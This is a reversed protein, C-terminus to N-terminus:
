KERRYIEIICSLMKCCSELENILNKHSYKQCERLKLRVDKLISEIDFTDAYESSIRDIEDPNANSLENCFDDLQSLPAVANKIYRAMKSDECMDPTIAWHLIAYDLGEKEIREIVDANTMKKM